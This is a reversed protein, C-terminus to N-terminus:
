CKSSTVKSSTKQGQPLAFHLSSVKPPLMKWMIKRTKKLSCMRWLTGTMTWSALCNQRPKQLLCITLMCTDFSSPSFHLEFNSLEKGHSSSWMDM